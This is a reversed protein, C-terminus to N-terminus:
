RRLLQWLPFSFTIHLRHIWVRDASCQQIRDGSLIAVLVNVGFDVRGRVSNPACHRVRANSAIDSFIKPVRDTGCQSHVPTDHEQLVRIIQMARTLSPQLTCLNSGAKQWHKIIELSEKAM